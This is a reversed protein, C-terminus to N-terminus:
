PYFYIKTATAGCGIPRRGDAPDTHTLGSFTSEPVPTATDDVFVEVGPSVGAFGDVLAGRVVAMAEDDSNSGAPVNSRLNFGYYPKGSARVVIPNGAGSAGTTKVKVPRPNVFAEGAVSPLRQAPEITMRVLDANPVTIPM